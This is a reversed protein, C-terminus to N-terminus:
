YPATGGFLRDAFRNPTRFNSGAKHTLLLSVKEDHGFVGYVTELKKMDIYASLSWMLASGLREESLEKRNANQRKAWGQKIHQLM